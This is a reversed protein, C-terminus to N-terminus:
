RRWGVTTTFSELGAVLPARATCSIMGLKQPNGALLKWDPEVGLLSGLNALGVRARTDALEELVAVDNDLGGDDVRTGASTGVGGRLTKTAVRASTLALTGGLGTHGGLDLPETAHTDETTEEALVTLGALDVLVEVVDKVELGLTVGELVLTDEHLV